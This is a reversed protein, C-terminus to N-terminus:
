SRMNEHLFQESAWPLWETRRNPCEGLHEERRGANLGRAPRGKENADRFSLPGTAGGAGPGDHTETQRVLSELKIGQFVYPFSEDHVALAFGGNV